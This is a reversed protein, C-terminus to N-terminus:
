GYFYKTFAAKAATYDNGSLLAFDELSTTVGGTNNIFDLLGAEPDGQATGFRAYEKYDDKFDRIASIIQNAVSVDFLAFVIPYWGKAKNDFRGSAANANREKADFSCQYVIPAAEPATYLEDENAPNPQTQYYAIAINLDALVDRKCIIVKERDNSLADFREQENAGLADFLTKIEIGALISDGGARNCYLHWAEIPTHNIHEVMVPNEETGENLMITETHAEVSNERLEEDIYYRMDRHNDPKIVGQPLISGNPVFGKNYKGLIM